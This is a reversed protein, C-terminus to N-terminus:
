AAPDASNAGEEGYVRQLYDELNEPQDGRADERERLAAYQREFATAIKDHLAVAPYPIGRQRNALLGHSCQWDALVHLQAQRHALLGIEAESASPFAEALELQYRERLPALRAPDYAGHRVNSPHKLNALQVVRKHPDNSLPM